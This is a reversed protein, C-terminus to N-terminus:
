PGPENRRWAASARRSPSPSRTTRSRSRANSTSTGSSRTSSAASRSAVGAGHGRTLPQDRRPHQRDARMGVVDLEPAARRQRLHARAPAWTSSATRVSPEFPVHSGSTRGRRGPRWGGPPAVPPPGSGRHRRRGSRRRPRRRASPRGRCWRAPRRASGRRGDRRPARGRGTSASGAAGRGGGPPRAADDVADDRRAVRVEEGARAGRVPRRAEQQELGCSTSWTSTTSSAAISALTAASSQWRLWHREVIPMSSSPARRRHAVRRTRRRPDAVLDGVAPPSSNLSM